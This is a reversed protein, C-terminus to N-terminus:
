GNDIGNSILIAKEEESCSSFSYNHLLFSHDGSGFDVMTWHIKTKKLKKIGEELRSTEIGFCVNGLSHDYLVDFGDMSEIFQIGEEFEHNIKGSVGLGKFVVSPKVDYHLVTVLNLDINRQTITKM